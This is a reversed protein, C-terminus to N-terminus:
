GIARGIAALAVQAIDEREHLYTRNGQLETVIWRAKRAAENLTAPVFDLIAQEIARVRASSAMARELAATYGCADEIRRCEAKLYELLEIREAVIKASKEEVRRKGAENHGVFLM